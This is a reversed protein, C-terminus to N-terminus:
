RIGVAGGGARHAPALRCEGRCSPGHERDASGPQEVGVAEGVVADDDHLVSADDGDGRPALRRGQHRQVLQRGARQEGRAEDVHLDVAAAPDQQVVLRRRGARRGDDGRVTACPVVPHRGVSIVSRGSTSEASSPAAASM